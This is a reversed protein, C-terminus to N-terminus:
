HALATDFRCMRLRADSRQRPQGPRPTLRLALQSSPLFAPPMWILVQGEIDCRYRVPSNFRALWVDLDVDRPLYVTAGAAQELVEHTATPTPDEAV